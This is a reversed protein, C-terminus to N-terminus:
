YPWEPVSRGFRALLKGLGLRLAVKLALNKVFWPL